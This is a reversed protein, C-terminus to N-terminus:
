PLDVTLLDVEFPVLTIKNPVRADVFTPDCESDVYIYDPDMM